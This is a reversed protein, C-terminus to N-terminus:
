GKIVVRAAKQTKFSTNLKIYLLEICDVHILNNQSLM